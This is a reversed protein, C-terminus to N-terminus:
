RMVCDVIVTDGLWEAHGFLVGNKLGELLALPSVVM